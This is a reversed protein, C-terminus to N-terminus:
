IENSGKLHMKLASYIIFDSFFGSNSWFQSWATKFLFGNQSVISFKYYYLLLKSNDIFNINFFFKFLGKNM